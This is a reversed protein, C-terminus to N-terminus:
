WRIWIKLLKSQPTLKYNYLPKKIIINLDHPYLQIKSFFVCFTTSAHMSTSPSIQLQIITKKYYYKPWSSLATNKFFFVCFTVSAHMLRTLADNVMLHRTCSFEPLLFISQTVDNSQDWGGRGGQIARATALGGICWWCGKEKRKEKRKREKRKESPFIDRARWLKWIL